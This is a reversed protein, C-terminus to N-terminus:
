RYPVQAALLTEAAASAPGRHGAIRRLPLDGHEARLAELLARVEGHAGSAELAHARAAMWTIKAVAALSTVTLARDARALAAAPDGDLADLLGEVAQIAEEISAPEAPRPAGALVARAGSRDGLGLRFSAANQAHMCRVARGVRRLDIGEVWRSADATYGANHAHLAAQLTWQAWAQYGNTRMESRERFRALEAELAQLPAGAPGEALAACLAQLKRATGFRRHFAWALAGDLFLGFGVAAPLGFARGLIVVGAVSVITVYAWWVWTWRGQLLVRWQLKDASRHLARPLAWVIATNVIALATVLLM